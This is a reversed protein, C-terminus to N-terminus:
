GNEEEPLKNTRVRNVSRMVFVKDHINLTEQNTTLGAFTRPVVRCLVNKDKLNNFMKADIEKYIPRDMSLRGNIMEFGELVEVKGLNLYNQTFVEQTQPNSLPDFDITDLDFTTMPTKLLSLAKLQMPVQRPNEKLKQVIINNPQSLDFTKLSISKKSAKLIKNDLFKFKKRIKGILMPKRLLINIVANNFKTEDGLFDRSDIYKELNEDNSTSAPDFDDQEQTSENNQIASKVIRLTNFFDSDFSESNIETTDVEKQGFFIKAPSFNMFKNEEINAMPSRLNEPLFSLAKNNKNIVGPFYKKVEINARQGFLDINIIPLGDSKNMSIFNIGIPKMLERKYEKKLTIVKEIVGRDKRSKSSAKESSKGDSLSYTRKFRDIISNYYNVTNLIRELDTSFLNVSNVLRNARPRTGILREARLLVEFSKVLYSNLLEPTNYEGEVFGTSPDVAINYQSYFEYLYQTSFVDGNFVNKMITVDYLNQLKRANRILDKLLGQCYLLPEDKISLKTQYKYSGAKAFRVNYDVFNIPRLTAPLTLDLQEIKGIKRSSAILDRTIQKGDFVMNPSGIKIKKPDVSIIKRPSVKYLVKNKVKQHNNNSRAILTPQSFDPTRFSLNFANVSKSKLMPYRNIEINIINTAQTISTLAQRDMQYMIKAVPSESLLINELDVITTNSVNRAHDEVFEEQYYPTAQPNPNNPSFLTSTLTAQPNPNFLTSRQPAQPNSNFLTSRLTAQPNSNFLTNRLTAQPVLLTGTPQRGLAASFNPALVQSQLNVQPRSSQLSPGVYTALDLSAQRELYEIKNNTITKSVLNEESTIGHQSGAMYPGSPMRHVPGSWPSENQDYFITATSMESNNEIIKESSVSGMYSQVQTYSLDLNENDKLDQLEIISASYVSLNIITIPIVFSFHKKFKKYTIGRIMVNNKELDDFNCKLKFVSQEEGTRLENLMINSSSLQDIISRKWVAICSVNLYGTFKEDLSWTQDEYDYMTVTVMAKQYSEFEQYIIKEIHVNPLYEKGVISDSM